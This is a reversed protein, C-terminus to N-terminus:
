LTPPDITTMHCIMHGWSTLSTIVLLSFHYGLENLFYLLSFQTSALQSRSSRALSDHAKRRVRVVIGLTKSLIILYYFMQHVEKNEPNVKKVALM